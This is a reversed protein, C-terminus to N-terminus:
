PTKAKRQPEFCVVSGDQLSVFVRNRAVALGDFVPPRPLSYEALEQGNEASLLRLRGDTQGEFQALPNDPEVVDPPGALLLTRGALALATPRVPLRKSWRPRPKKRRKRGQKDKPVPKRAAALARAPDWYAAFVTYGRGVPQFTHARSRGEYAVVGYALEGDFVLLEAPPAAGLVWHTRNFWSDDRFGATSYLHPRRTEPGFVRQQRMYVAQGDSVLIDALVGPVSRADGRPQEGTKPDPSYLTKRQRVEGSAPDFAFVRIGGDLYSSRGAAAYAVDGLVLVSGAVPWASELRGFAGVQREAPALRRRWVLEGNDARVCYVWGDASGFLALRGLVTPPTDVPGGATFSWLVRGTRADLAVVRHQDVNSVFVRDGVVVPPSVRGGLEVRWGRKLKSSVSGATAGSRLPDHRFTPWDQQSDAPDVSLLSAARPFAPGRELVTRDEQPTKSPSAERAGRGDADAQASSTSSSPLQRGALACYGNLKTALYCECPHPTLYLLGNCPFVGLLCSGRAWHHLWNRGNSLDVFEVGRRSPLLYRVTAKGRYCRHHHGVNFIKRTSIRRRVEGTHLDLGLVAYDVNEKDRIDHGPFDVPIHEHVWVLGDIVFVDPQWNHAWGGYQHSWLKKGDSARFAHLTGPLTHWSRRKKMEPQAFLVVGDQYVLVCQDSMRISYMVLHEQFPPRPVRWLQRGSRLDLCVLSDHDVLFVRDEGVTLELRGFPQSADYKAHLGTYQDRKWLLRGSDADVVRVSQRVPSKDQDSPRRTQEYVALVLLGDRFLIEDTNETQEYVRRVQGTAADLESVPAHFGLTVFVRDDVAVLRKPLQPPADFRGLWKTNWQRWGWDRIPKKWLLVGNFADRAVLFWKDPLQGNLGPPAEDSIYFVRGNASVFSSTSPVTDHHRQWLPGAQWQLRGPPQVLRDRAVANNDPGHLWHTWQDMGDPWPKRFTSRISGRRNVAVAVGNPALVRAVEPDEVDWGDASVVLLNVLNEAYPLRRGRLLRISVPGYLGLSQVTQRARRVNEESADLGQVVYRDNLRLAATLRGDACGLHVVLGGAVGSREVIREALETLPQPVASLRERGPAASASVAPAANASVGKPQPTQGKDVSAAGGVTLVVWCLASLCGVTAVALGRRTYVGRHGNREAM